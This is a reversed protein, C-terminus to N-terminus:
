PLATGTLPPLDEPARSLMEDRSATLHARLARVAATASGGRLAAIIAAHEVRMRAVDYRELSYSRITQTQRLILRHWSALLNNGGLAVIAEHFERDLRIAEALDAATRREAHAIQAGYTAQLGALVAATVRRARAAVDAAHVEILIRAEYIEAIDAAIFRRVVSARRSAGAVLGDRELEALAEKVPTQSISLQGALEEALLRQGPPLRGSVIRAKLEEYAQQALTAHTMMTM